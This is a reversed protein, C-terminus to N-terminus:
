LVCGAWAGHVSCKEYNESIRQLLELERHRVEKSVMSETVQVYLNDDSKTTIFDVEANGVKSIAVGYGRRLLEFNVVNELAHGRNWNRFGM